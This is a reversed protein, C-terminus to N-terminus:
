DFYGRHVYEKCKKPKNGITKIMFVKSKILRNSELERDPTGLLSDLITTKNTPKHTANLPDNDLIYHNIRKKDVSM